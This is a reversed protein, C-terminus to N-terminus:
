MKRLDHLFIIDSRMLSFYKFLPKSKFLLDSFCALTRLFYVTIGNICVVSYFCLDLALWWKLLNTKNNKTACCTLFFSNEYFKILVTQWTFPLIKFGKERKFLRDDFEISLRRVASTFQISVNLLIIKVLTFEILITPHDGLINTHHSWFWTENLTQFLLFAWLYSTM